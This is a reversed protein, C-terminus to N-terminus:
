ASYYNEYHRYFYEPDGYGTAAQEAMDVRTLVVGVVNANQSKLIRLAHAVAARPTQKWRAVCVVADVKQALVRTDAVPLVPATDLIVLDYRDKAESILESFTDSGFIDQDTAAHRPLLLLDAGSDTDRVVADALCRDGSIVDLLGGNPADPFMGSVGPRRLDSDILLVRWGQLAATRALCISTTSKGERPLASTIAVTRIAQDPDM